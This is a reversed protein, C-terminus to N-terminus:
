LAEYHAILAEIRDCALISQEVYKVYDKSRGLDMREQWEWAEQAQHQHTLWLSEIAEAPTFWGEGDVPPTIEEDSLYPSWCDRLVGHVTNLRMFASRDYFAAKYFISVRERGKDDVIRSWMSHDTPAKKWGPPLTALCFLPDSPLPPGLTFGLDFFEQRAQEKTQWTGDTNRGAQIETPLSLSDVLERQGQAEQALISDPGGLLFGMANVPDRMAETTNTPADAM